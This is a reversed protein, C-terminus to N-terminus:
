RKVIKFLTLLIIKVDGLLTHNKAYNVYYSQKIPLIVEIYAKKPDAYQALVLNEDIMEISALDTIGPKVSLITEKNMIDYHSVFEPVEPRPGVISMYGLFVDILQPLEDLKYKRLWIGSRTVRKDLGITLQGEKESMIKMTRFKRIFFLQGNLGVRCQRFLIPGPSDLKILLAIFVLVPSLVVLGIASAVVDFVRKLM